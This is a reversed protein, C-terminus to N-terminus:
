DYIGILHTRIYVPVVLSDEQNFVSMTKSPILPMHCSVCNNGGLNRKEMSFSCDITNNANQHCQICKSKFWEIDNRQNKHPNHCSTCNMAASRKFCPSSLLLGYQNGHVDLSDQISLRQNEKGTSHTLTDGTVFEFPSKGFELDTGSHCLACMYLNQRQSAKSLSVIDQGTNENPNKKHYNVHDLSPGHCRECDIGFILNSKDYINPKNFTLKNEAYTFHCELCRARVPRNPAYVGNPYGPSNVWSGDAEFYSVQLQYLQNDQWNFYSQGKTGSGIAIDLRKSEILSDIPRLFTNQHIGKDKSVMSFRIEDNLIFDNDFTINGKVTTSDALGSSKFHTTELHSRFIEPHCSACTESGAFGKGNNHIIKPIIPQYENTSYSNYYKFTLFGVIILLIM